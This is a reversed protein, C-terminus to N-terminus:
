SSNLGKSPNFLYIGAALWGARLHRPTFRELRALHYCTVFRQKKIPSADDLAALHYRSKLPSFVGLNLPQLVHSSHAPLFLLFIKLQKCFWLFEITTYSSHGDLILLRWKDSNPQTEPHFIRQGTSVTTIQQGAM